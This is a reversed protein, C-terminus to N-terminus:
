LAYFNIWNPLKDMTHHSYIREVLIRKCREWLMSARLYIPVIIKASSYSCDSRLWATMACASGGTAYDRKAGLLGSRTYVRKDNDNTAHATTSDFDSKPDLLLILAINTTSYSLWKEGKDLGQSDISPPPHLEAREKIDTSKLLSPGWTSLSDLQSQELGCAYIEVNAYKEPACVSSSPPFSGSSYSIWLLYRDIGFRYCGRSSYGPLIGLCSEPTFRYNKKKHSSAFLL